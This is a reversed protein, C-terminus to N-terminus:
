YLFKVRYGDLSPTVNSRFGRSMDVRVRVAEPSSNTGQKYNVRLNASPMTHTVIEDNYITFVKAQETYNFQFKYPDVYRWDHLKVTGYNELKAGNMLSLSGLYPSALEASSPPIDIIIGIHNRGRQFKWPVTLRDLGRPLSALESGNLFAKINWTKSNIDLKEIEHMQAPMEKDVFVYTEVYVSKANAGVDGGYFFGQGSDIEGYATEYSKPDDLVNVWFDFGDRFSSTSLNTYYIKTANFGEEMTLTGDLFTENFRFLRYVEMGPFYSPTPNRGSLDVHTRNIPNVRIDSERRPRLRADFKRDVSGGFRIIEREKKFSGVPYIRQWAFDSISTANPNDAAVYYDISTEEPKHENVELAVADIKSTGTFEMDLSIPNSVFTSHNSYLQKIFSINKFGFLFVDYNNITKYDSKNKWCHLTISRVHKKPEDVVFFMKTDSTKLIHSFQSSILRGDEGEYSYSIAMRVPESGFPELEVRTIENDGFDGSLDFTFEAYLPSPDKITTQMWWATNSLGDFADTFPTKKEYEVTTGDISSITVSSLGIGKLPYISSGTRLQPISLTGAELDVVSTTMSFDIGNDTRFNNSSSFFFGGTDSAVLLFDDIKSGVLKQKAKLRTLYDELLSNVLMLSDINALCSEYLTDINAIAFAMFDNILEPDSLTIGEFANPSLSLPQTPRQVAFFSNLQTRVRNLDLIKGMLVQNKLLNAYVNKIQVERISM